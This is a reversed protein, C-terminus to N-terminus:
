GHHMMELLKFLQLGIQVLHDAVVSQGVEAVYGVERPDAGVDLLSEPPPWNNAAAKWMLACLVVNVVTDEYGRTSVDVRDLSDDVSFFRQVWIGLGEKRIAPEVWPIRSIAFRQRLVRSYLVVGGETM